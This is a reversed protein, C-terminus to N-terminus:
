PRRVGEVPGEASPAHRASSLLQGYLECLMDGVRVSGFRDAADRAIASRDYHRLRGMMAALAGTLADANGAPVTIGSQETVFEEPGGCRTVVVPLGSALAEATAVSFTEALSPLVFVDVRHMLEAIEEKRLQGHFRVKDALGLDRAMERHRAAEPGDGVLDLSWPRTQWVEQTLARFLVGLGKSEILSSVALLRLTGDPAPVYQKFGFLETNVVEPVVHFRAQVGLERLSHQLAQSVPLVADAMRFIWRARRMEAATLAGRQFGTYHESVAVPIGRVKGVLLAPLGTSYVHAHILDPRGHKKAAATVAHMVSGLYRPLSCGRISSPRFRVRYCPVGAALLDDREEEVAWWGALAREAIGCHLVVVNCRPQIARAYERVFIGGYRHDSTPYWPTLFVVNMRQVGGIDRGLRRGDLCAPATVIRGRVGSAVGPAEAGLGPRLM